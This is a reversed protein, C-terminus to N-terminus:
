MVEMYIRRADTPYLERRNNVLLRTVSMGADVLADLDVPKVGFDALRYDIGVNRVMSELRDLMWAAKTKLTKMGGCPRIRDYMTAFLEQNVDENFRMVPMLLMANAIGHAIHYKGGLPYSLAHVATTGAAAIAVGAYFSALLMNAKAVMDELGEECATEINAEILRFAELAYVDSLPSARKSTFCEVAHCLADVGTSAAIKRPLKKIMEADLVVTDAILDPNVIGLKISEEPITVIANPTAEAGTGATTPIIISRTTRSALSPERVLDHITYQDTDLVSALKAVDIVSGGGLGVVLDAGIDRFQAISEEAQYVTPESSLGDIIHPEIGAKKLTAELALTLGMSRIMGDTFLAARHHGQLYPQLGSLADEGVLVFRPLRLSFM